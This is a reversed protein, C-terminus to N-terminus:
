WGKIREIIKNMLEVFEQRLEIDERLQEIHKEYIDEIHKINNLVLKLSFVSVCISVIAVITLDMM